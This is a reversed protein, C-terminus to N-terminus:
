EYRLARTPEIRSARVAPVLGAVFAVAALTVVALSLAVPDYGQMQYLQAQALRGLAVAAGVGIVAGILTMVGVQGLVMSRVRWPAAGLAMRVGIERTRQAVTYALVGYLGIAALITALGAFAGSFISIFRDLYINQRVQEPMTRLEEVPLNPDIAAIVKPITAVMRRPDLSTRVYFSASGIGSDQAIPTFYVPPIQDKVDSYKADRVLGVIEIDYKKNSEDMRKGVPNAGLNFKRAFAQNVIAVKPAGLLDADTFERGTIVRVGLTSFYGPSVMNRRSNNDVDPGAAFGEVDVDNGWNSNALLPVQSSTVATVGPEHRLRDEVRQMLQLTRPYAYGNRSPSLGFTVVRDIKVGLDTRSINALSRAFLGAAGLLAMSLAIQATALTTRWRAAARGGGPQGTSARLGAILDPRTAHIAPFLGFVIATGIALSATFLIVTGDLHVDFTQAAFDPLLHAMAGLTARAVGLSVIGGVLGLICSEVLLQMVMQTRSGGISMRVAMEGARSAGRVLLLNAINACAILLVFATIALLFTLPGKANKGVTSQGQLGPTLALVKARFKAMTPASMGQQLPAEVNNLIAHYPVNIAASAKDISLGPKLRAFLYIWYSRRNEFGKWGPILVARMTIPVFVSPRSGITTGTFGRPAVGIITMSEGNVIVSQNLVAPDGGFTNTWYDYSLVAVRSAGPAQDDDQGILRGIVPNLGLVQFYSGSVMLAEASETHNRAALNADVVVHAAIGTFPTQERELDRFMPYSFIVDCGGALGCSQSGPNPGPAGLNVLRDPDVVPLPRLMLQNFLSFIATNAGIGLALSAIAVSTVFPTKFLLRFAFKLNIM